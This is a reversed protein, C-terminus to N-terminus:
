LPVTIFNVTVHLQKGPYVLQDCACLALSKPVCTESYYPKKCAVCAHPSTCLKHNAYAHRMCLIKVCLRVKEFSTRMKKLTDCNVRCSSCKFMSIHGQHKQYQQWETHQSKKEVAIFLAYWQRTMATVAKLAHSMFVCMKLPQGTNKTPPSQRM